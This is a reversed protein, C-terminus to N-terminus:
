DLEYPNVKHFPSPESEAIYISSTGGFIAEVTRKAREVQERLISMPITRFVKQRVAKQEVSSILTYLNQRQGGNPRIQRTIKLLGKQQLRYIARYVTVVSLHCEKAIQKQSPYCQGNADVYSALCSYVKLEVSSLFPSVASKDVAFWQDQTENIQYFNSTQRGNYDFRSVITILDAKALQKIAKYISTLGLGCRQALTKKSPFIRHDKGDFSKLILFVKYATPSITSQFVNAPCAIFTTSM